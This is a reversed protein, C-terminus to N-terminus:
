VLTACHTNRNCGHCRTGCVHSCTLCGSRAYSPGGRDAPLRGLVDDDVVLGGAKGCVPVSDELRIAAGRSAVSLASALLAASGPKELVAASCGDTLDLTSRTSSWARDSM